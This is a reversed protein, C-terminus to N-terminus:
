RLARRADLDTMADDIPMSVVEPTAAASEAGDTVEVGCAQQTEVGQEGNRAVISLAAIERVLREAEDAQATTWPFGLVYLGILEKLPEVTNARERVKRCFERDKSVESM